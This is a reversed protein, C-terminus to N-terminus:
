RPWCSLPVALAPLWFLPPTVVFLPTTEMCLSAPVACKRVQNTDIGAWFRAWAGYGVLQARLEEDKHVLNKLEQSSLSASLQLLLLFPLDYPLETIPASPCQLWACFSSGHRYIAPSSIFLQLSSATDGHRTSRAVRCAVLLSCCAVASRDGWGDM